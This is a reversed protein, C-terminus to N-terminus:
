MSHELRLLPMAGIPDLPLLVVERKEAVSRARDIRNCAQPQGHRKLLGDRQRLRHCLLIEGAVRGLVVAQRFPRAHHFGHHECHILAVLQPLARSGCAPLPAARM